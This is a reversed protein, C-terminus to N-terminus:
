FCKKYLPKEDFNLTFHIKVFTLFLINKELAERVCNLCNVCKLCEWVPLITSIIEHLNCAVPNILYNHLGAVEGVEGLGGVRGVDVGHARVLRHLVDRLGADHLLDVEM